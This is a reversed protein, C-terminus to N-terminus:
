GESATSTASPKLSRLALHASYAVYPDSHTRLESLLEMARIDEINGLAWLANLPIRAGKRQQIYAILPETAQPDKLKGLAEV